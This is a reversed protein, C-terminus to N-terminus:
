RKRRKEVKYKGMQNHQAMRLIEDRSGSQDESKGAKTTTKGAYQKARHDENARVARGSIM